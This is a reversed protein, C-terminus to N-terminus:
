AASFRGRGAPAPAALPMLTQDFAIANKGSQKAQYMAKDAARVLMDATANECPFSVIGISAGLTLSLDGIKIPACLAEIVKAGVKRANDSDEVGGLVLVFEDGGIRAVTDVERVAARLRKAVEVLVGDGIRHGHTDNIPKFDDLDIYLLAGLRNLRAAVQIAQEIRDSLLHRNALGTLPDHLAMHQIRRQDRLVVLVLVSAFLAVVGGIFRLPGIIPASTEWGTLPRAAMQWSGSPLEIDLLVPKDRFTENGGIFPAGANGLDDRTRLAIEIKTRAQDLGTAAILTEISIVTSAMGWYRAQPDHPSPLFIPIRSIFAQGGQVLEYPGGLVALRSTQAKLVADRQFPHALIDVGLAAKNADLPHIHSVVNNHALALHRVHPASQHLYEAIIRFEDAPMDEHVAVHAALGQAVQIDRMVLGEIKARTTAAQDLTEARIQSRHSEQAFHELLQEGALVLVLTVLAAIIPTHKGM